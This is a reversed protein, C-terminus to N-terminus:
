RSPLDHGWTLFASNEEMGELFERKMADSGVGSLSKSSKSVACKM